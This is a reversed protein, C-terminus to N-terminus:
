VVVEALGAPPVAESVQEALPRVAPVFCPAPARFAFAALPGACRGAERMPLAVPPLLAAQQVWAALVLCPIPFASATMPEAYRGAERMPLAVPLLSAARQLWAEPAFPVRLQCRRAWHQAPQEWESRQAM